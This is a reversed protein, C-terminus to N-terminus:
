LSRVAVTPRLHHLSQTFSLVSLGVWVSWYIYIREGSGENRMVPSARSVKASAESIHFVFIRISVQVIDGAKQM